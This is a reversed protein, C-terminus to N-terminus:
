DPAILYTAREDIRVAFAGGGGDRFRRLRPGPDDETHGLYSATSSPVPAGPSAIAEAIDQFLGADLDNKPIRFVRLGEPVRSISQAVIRPRPPMLGEADIVDFARFEADDKGLGEEEMIRVVLAARRARFLQAREIQDRQSLAAVLGASIGEPYFLDFGPTRALIEITGDAEVVIVAADYGEPGPVTMVERGDRLVEDPQAFTGPLGDSWEPRFSVPTWVADIGSIESYPVTPLSLRLEVRLGDDVPSLRAQATGLLGGRFRAARRGVVPSGEWEALVEERGDPVALRVLAFRDSTVITQAPIGSGPSGPGLVWGSTDRRLAYVSGGQEWVAALYGAHREYSVLRLQWVTLGALVLVLILLARRM